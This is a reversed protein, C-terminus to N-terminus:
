VDARMRMLISRFREPFNVNNITPITMKDIEGSDKYDNDDDDNHDLQIMWEKKWGEGGQLPVFTAVMLKVGPRIVRVCELHSDEFDDIDDNTMMKCNHM